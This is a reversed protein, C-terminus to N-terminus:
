PQERMGRRESCVCGALVAEQSIFSSEPQALGHVNRLYLKIVGRPLCVVQNIALQFQVIVTFSVVHAKLNLAVIRVMVLYEWGQSFDGRSFDDLDSDLDLSDLFDAFHSPAEKGFKCRIAELDGPPGIFLGVALEFFGHGLDTFALVKSNQCDRDLVVFLSQGLVLERFSGGIQFFSDLM